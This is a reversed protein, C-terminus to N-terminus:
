KKNLENAWFVSKKWQKRYNKFYSLPNRIKQCKYYKFFLVIKYGLLQEKSHHLIQFLMITPSPKPQIVDKHWALIPKTRFGGMPAKLHLIQPEPLYLIDVGQNRLQMGFDTDEGYGFEFPTNFKINKLLERKVFSNGAGFTPWQVVNKDQILEGKQPYATTAVKNGYMDIKKFVDAILFTNFRNDDDALFVWESETYSLAINRANCAGAQHTFIHKIAFPWVKDYLYDLESVSEKDPNQEVVIVRVPVHSQSKLDCLVDYLYSKRGITPIIVDITALNVVKRSSQVEINNLDIKSKSRKKYFLSCLFPLFPFRRKYIILNLLLLFIWRTKYHQKVFRFLTFLSTKAPINTDNKKLLKPESYCLLGLPMCLKALSNLFYDFDTDLKIKDTVSLLLSAHIVGVASSMQWTPYTKNKNVKIFPSDEIYGISSGFYNVQNPRYSLMMKNHHFLLDVEILDIFDQYFIHCWVIKSKPFKIALQFLGEAISGKDNLPLLKDQRSIVKLIHANNHYVVIM